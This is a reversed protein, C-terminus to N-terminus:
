GLAIMGHQIVAGVLTIVCGAGILVSLADGGKLGQSMILFIAVAFMVLTFIAMFKAGPHIEKAEGASQLRRKSDEAYKDGNSKMDIKFAVFSSGIAVIVSALWIPWARAMYEGIDIGATGATIGVAGQIIPDFSMMAGHGCMNMAVAAWIAPMGAKIAIPTLLAGVLAIGPSPWVLATIIAMVVGLVIYAISPSKIVKALPEILARDTGMDAMQKSMMVMIGIGVILSGFENYSYLLARAETLLAEAINGSAVLGSLMTFIMCPLVVDKKMCMAVIVFITGILYIWHLPTLTIEM